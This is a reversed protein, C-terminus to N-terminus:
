EHPAALARGILESRRLTAAPYAPDDRVRSLSFDPELRRLTNLIREAQDHRGAARHLAYLHRMPARFAPARAYAAQYHHAAEEYRGLAMAALGALAQWWPQFASREAIM